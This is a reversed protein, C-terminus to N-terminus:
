FGYNEKGKGMRAGMRKKYIILTAIRQWVEGVGVMTGGIGHNMCDDFIGM